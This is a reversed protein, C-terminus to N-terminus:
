QKQYPYDVTRMHQLDDFYVTQYQGDPRVTLHIMIETGEPFSALSPKRNKAPAEVLYLFTIRPPVDNINIRPLNCTAIWLQSNPAIDSVMKSTQVLYTTDMPKLEGADVGICALVSSVIFLYVVRNM